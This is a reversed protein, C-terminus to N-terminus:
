GSAGCASGTRARRSRPSGTATWAAGRRAPQPPEQAAARAGERGAAGRRARPLRADGPRLRARHLRLGPAAVGETDAVLDEFHVETYHNVPAGDQAGQPDPQAVPAGVAAYTEPGWNMRLHSLSVDRGDRIIHVFRAEPLVRQIRRMEQVYGPTKDGYRTKGEREAYLMYFARIADAATM